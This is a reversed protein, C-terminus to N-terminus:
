AAEKLCAALLLEIMDKRLNGYIESDVGLLASGAKILAQEAQLVLHEAELAPCHGDKGTFGHARHERDCAAYFAAIRAEDSNCKYLDHYTKIREGTHSCYFDGFIDFVPAIYADVQERKMSAYVRAELVAMALSHHNRCFRKFQNLTPKNM